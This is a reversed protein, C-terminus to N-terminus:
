REILMFYTLTNILLYMEIKFGISLEYDITILYICVVLMKLHWM